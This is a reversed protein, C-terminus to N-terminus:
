VLFLSFLCWLVFFVFVFVELLGWFKLSRDLYVCFWEFGFAAYFLVCIVFLCGRLCGQIWIWIGVLLVFCLCGVWVVLGLFVFGLWWSFLCEVLFCFLCEGFSLLSYVFGSVDRCCCFGGFIVCVICLYVFGWFLSVLCYLLILVWFTFM